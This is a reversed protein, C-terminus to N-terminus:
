ELLGEACNKEREKETEKDRKTSYIINAIIRVQFIKDGEVIIAIAMIDQLGPDMVTIDYLWTLFMM